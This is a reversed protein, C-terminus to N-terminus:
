YQKVALKSTYFPIGPSFSDDIYVMGDEKTYSKIGLHYPEGPSMPFVKSIFSIEESSHPYWLLGGLDACKDANEYIDSSPSVEMYCHDAFRIWGDPCALIM